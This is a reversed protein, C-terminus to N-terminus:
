DAKLWEITNDLFSCVKAFDADKIFRFRTNDLCLIQKVIEYRSLEFDVENGDNDHHKFNSYFRVKM